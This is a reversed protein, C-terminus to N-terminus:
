AHVRRVLPMDRTVPSDATKELFNTFFCAGNNTRSNLYVLHISVIQRDLLYINRSVDVFTSLHMGQIRKWCDGMWENM